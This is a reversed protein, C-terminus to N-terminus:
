EYNGNIGIDRSLPNYEVKHINIEYCPSQGVFAKLKDALGTESRLGLIICNLEERSFPLFYYSKGDANPVKEVVLPKGSLKEGGRMKEDDYYGIVRWETEHSWEVHKTCFVRVANKSDSQIAPLPDVYNVRIAIGFPGWAAEYPVGGFVETGLYRHIFGAVFGKHGDAYHAWMARSLPNETLSLVGMQDSILQQLRKAEISPDVRGRIAQGMHYSAVLASREIDTAASSLEDRCDEASMPEQCYYMESPDNLYIPPTVLLRNECFWKLKQEAKPGEVPFYKYLLINEGKEM